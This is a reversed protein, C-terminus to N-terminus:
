ESNGRELIKQMGPLAGRRPNTPKSGPISVHLLIASDQFLVALIKTQHGKKDSEYITKSSADFM